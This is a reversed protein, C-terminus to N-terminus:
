AKRARIMAGGPPSIASSSGIKDDECGVERETRPCTAEVGEAEREPAVCNAGDVRTELGFLPDLISIKESVPPAVCSSDAPSHASNPVLSLLRFSFTTSAVAQFPSVRGWFRTAGLVGFISTNLSVTLKAIRMGLIFGSELGIIFGDSCCGCVYGKGASCV